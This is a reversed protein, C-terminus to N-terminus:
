VYGYVGRVSVEGSMVQSISKDEREVLLEGTKNIGRCIGKYEDKSALVLVERNLNVLREEYDEQICSLDAMSLFKEYYEEMRKVICAIMGSRKLKKGTELYLSTATRAIEEPFEEINVNIGIGVVVYQIMEMDASMETLIGCIKKGELTLDNPWKIQPKLGCYDEIGVSVALGALLTLMPACSPELKPKLVLSMWIGTGAPSTWHRGRRGKGATQCEAVVLTGDLAGKEAQRRAETNTSDTEERFEVKHGMWRSKMCSRIEAATLVDASEVLYYGKNRVAEIAYGEEKLQKIVKWVATRSVHLSECLEQGSLYTDCERLLRIVEAKM